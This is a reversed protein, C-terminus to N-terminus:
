VQDVGNSNGGSIQVNPSFLVYIYASPVYKIEIKKTYLYGNKNRMM